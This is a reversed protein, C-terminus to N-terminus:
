ASKNKEGWNVEAGVSSQRGRELLETRRRSEGGPEGPERHSPPHKLHIRAVRNQDLDEFGIYTTSHQFSPFGISHALYDNEKRSM